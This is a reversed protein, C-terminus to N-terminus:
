RLSRTSPSSVARLRAMMRHLVSSENPRSTLASRHARSTIDQVMALADAHYDGNVSPRSASVGLRESMCRGWSEGLTTVAMERHLLALAVARQRDRSDLRPTPFAIVNGNTRSM